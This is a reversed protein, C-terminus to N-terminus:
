VLFSKSYAVPTSVDSKSALFSKIAKFASTSLSSILLNILTGVLKFLKFLFTFSKFTPSNFVTGTSKPFNLSTTFFSTTLECSDM